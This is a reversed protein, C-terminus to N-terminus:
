AIAFVLTALHPIQQRHGISTTSLRVLGIGFISLMRYKYTFDLCKSFPAFSVVSVLNIYMTNAVDKKLIHWFLIKNFLSLFYPSPLCRSLLYRISFFDTIQNRKQIYLFNHLILFSFWCQISFPVSFVSVSVFLMYTAELVIQNYLM